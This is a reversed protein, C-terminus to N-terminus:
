KKKAPYLQVWFSQAGSSNKTSFDEAVWDVALSGTQSVAISPSVNVTLGPAPAPITVAAAPPKGNAPYRRYQILSVTTDTSDCYKYGYSVHCSQKRTTASKEWAIAFNGGSDMAVATQGLDQMSTFKPDPNNSDSTTKFQAKAVETETASLQTTTHDYRRFRITSTTSAAYQYLDYPDDCSVYGDYTHCKKPIHKTTRKTVTQDRHWAVAFDGAEDMAIVPQDLTYDVTLNDPDFNTDAAPTLDVRISAGTASGNANFRRVRVQGTSQWTVAFNGNKDMAVDAFTAASLAHDNIDLEDTLATGTSNFLRGLVDSGGSVWIVVFNGQSDIGVRPNQASSDVAGINVPIEDGLASGDAAIRQALVATDSRWVIVTAGTSNRALAPAAASVEAQNALVPAPGQAVGSANYRRFAVGTPGTGIGYTAWVTAFNGSGDMAIRQGGADTVPATPDAQIAKPTAAGVASTLGLGILVAAAVPKLPFQKM